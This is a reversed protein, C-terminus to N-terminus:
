SLQQLMEPTIQASQGFMQQMMNAGGDAMVNNRIADAAPKGIESAMSQQISEPSQGQQMQQEGELPLADPNQEVIFQDIDDIGMRRALDLMFNYYNVHQSMEPQQSVIQLFQLRQSIEYEKDAIHDAGVPTLIFDNQLEEIGVAFFDYDGPNEGAVRVIEDQNVFQQFLRFVKNLCPILATEEIHKHITSLRSGGAERVARIEAATVREANRSANASIGVGTGTNKDIRQELVSQEDYTIVFQNPMQIPSITGQQTVSFVRGPESYIDEPALTGDDVHEWMANVALELNDLRQNTLINMEHLLGLTPEIVGLSSTSRNIPIYTGFIFPKGCWFPNNEFRVLTDCCMTAVVDRYTVGDVTINGWYEWLEVHDSWSYGAEVEIGEFDKLVQRESSTYDSGHYPKQSVIEYATMGNFFVGSIMDVVEAKTKVIRRIFDSTDPSIAKPDLFCDFM